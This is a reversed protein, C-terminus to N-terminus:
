KLQWYNVAFRSDKFKGSPCSVPMVEHPLMSPFCLLMDNEPAIDIQNGGLELPAISRLRFEGGTFGAPENYFYYVASIVRTESNGRNPGTVTDIHNSFFAGDNHCAIQIQQGTPAFDKQSLAENIRAQSRAMASRFLEKIRDNPKLTTSVRVDSLVINSGDEDVITSPKFSNRNHEAYDLLFQNDAHGLFGRIVSYPGPTTFAANM